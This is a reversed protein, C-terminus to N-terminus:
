GDHGMGNRQPGERNWLSRVATFSLRVNAVDVNYHRVYITKFTDLYDPNNQLYRYKEPIDYSRLDALLAAVSSTM